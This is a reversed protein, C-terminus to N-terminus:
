IVLNDRLVSSSSIGYLKGLLRSSFNTSIHDCLAITKLEASYTDLARLFSAHQTNQRHTVWELNDLKNNKKNLDKHNVVFNRSNDKNNFVLMLLRHQKHTGMLKKHYLVYGDNDTKTSIRTLTYSNYLVGEKNIYYITDEVQTFGRSKLLKANKLRKAILADSREIRYKSYYMDM